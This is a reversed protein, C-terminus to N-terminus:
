IDRQYRFNLLYLLLNSIEGDSQPPTCVVIEKVGAVKAPIVTMLLSVPYVYRLGPIYVCIRELPLM